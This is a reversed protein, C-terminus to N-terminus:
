IQGDTHGKEEFGCRDSGFNFSHYELVRRGPLNLKIGFCKRGDSALVISGIMKTSVPKIGAKM